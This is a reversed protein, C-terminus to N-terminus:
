PRDRKVTRIAKFSLPIEPVEEEFRLEYVESSGCEQCKRAKMRCVQCADSEMGIQLCLNEKGVRHVVVVGVLEIWTVGCSACAFRKKALEETSDRTELERFIEAARMKKVEGCM